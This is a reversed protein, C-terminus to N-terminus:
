ETESKLRSEAAELSKRANELDRLANELDFAVDENEAMAELKRQTRELQRKAAALTNGGDEFFVKLKKDDGNGDVITTPLRVIRDSDELNYVRIQAESIDFAEGTPFESFGKLGALGELGELDELFKLNGLKALDIKPLDVSEGDSFTLRTVGDESTEIKAAELKGGDLIRYASEVGNETRLEYAEMEGTVSKVIRINKDDAEDAAISIPASAVALVGMASLALVRGGWTTPRARGLTELRDAIPHAMGLTLADSVGLNLLNKM